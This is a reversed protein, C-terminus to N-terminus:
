ELSEPITPWLVEYGEAKLDNIIMTVNITQVRFVLIKFHNDSDPYVLVSSINLKRHRFISSVEALMGAKNPVKIEIHSAPQDGGTLKVFTHLLDTETLMGVLMDNQLIPLCGIKHEMLVAAAEEVFDLPHGTVVNNTMVTKIPENLFDEKLELQFISPSADKVDRETIIGVLKADDTLIPIHRIKNIKMTELALRIPDSSNLTIVNQNMIQKVIM